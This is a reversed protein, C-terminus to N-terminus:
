ATLWAIASERDGFAKARHGHNSEVTKWMDLSLRAKAAEPWVHAHRFDSGLGIKGLAEGFGVLAINDPASTATTWDALVLHIGAEDMLAKVERATRTFDSSKVDGDHTIEIIPYQPMLSHVTTTM